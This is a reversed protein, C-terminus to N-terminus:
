LNTKDSDTHAHRPLETLNALIPKNCCSIIFRKACPSRVNVTKDKPLVWAHREAHPYKLEIRVDFATFGSGMIYDALLLSLHCIDAHADAPKFAQTM